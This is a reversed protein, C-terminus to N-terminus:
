EERVEVAKLGLRRLALKLLQRLARVGDVGGMPQLRIVFTPREAPPTPRMGGSGATRALTASTAPQGKGVYRARARPPSLCHVRWM